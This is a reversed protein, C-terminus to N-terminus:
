EDDWRARASDPLKGTGDQQKPKRDNKDMKQEFAELPNFGFAEAIGFAVILVDAVEEEFDDPTEGSTLASQVEGVEEGLFSAWFLRNREARIHGGDVDLYDADSEERLAEHFAEVREMYPDDIM